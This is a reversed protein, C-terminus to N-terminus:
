RLSGIVVQLKRLNSGAHVMDGVPKKKRERHSEEPEDHALLFTM